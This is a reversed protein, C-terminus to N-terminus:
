LNVKLPSIVGWPVPQSYTTQEPTFAYAVIFVDVEYESTASTIATTGSRSMDSTAAVWTTYLDSFWPYSFVGSTSVTRFVNGSSSGVTLVPIPATQPGTHATPPGSVNMTTLFNGFDLTIDVNATPSTSILPVTGSNQDNASMRQYGLVILYDRTPTSALLSYDNALNYSPSQGLSSATPYLKYYIEYGQFDTFSGYTTSSQSYKLITPDTQAVYSPVPPPPLVEITQIGCSALLLTAALLATKM